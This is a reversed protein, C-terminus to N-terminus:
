NKGVLWDCGEILYNFSLEVLMRSLFLLILDSFLKFANVKNSSLKIGNHLVRSYGWIAM